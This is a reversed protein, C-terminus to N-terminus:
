SYHTLSFNCNPSSGFAREKKINSAILIRIEFNNFNRFDFANREIVKILNNTAELKANSYLLKLAEPNQGLREFLDQFHNPFYSKCLFHVSQKEQFHLLLLRDLIEKNALYMHFTSNKFHILTQAEYVYKPNKRSDYNAM